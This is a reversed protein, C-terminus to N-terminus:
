TNNSEVIKIFRILKIAQDYLEDETMNNVKEDGFHKRMLHKFELFHETSIMM